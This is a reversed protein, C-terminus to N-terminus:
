RIAFPASFHMAGKQALVTYRGAALNTLHASTTITVTLAGETISDCMIQPRAPMAIKVIKGDPYVRTAPKGDVLVATRSVPSPLQGALHLVLPAEGPYGCQMEYHVTVALRVNKAHAAHSSATVSATPAGLALATAAIALPFM